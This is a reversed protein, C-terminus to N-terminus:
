DDCQYISGVIADIYEDLISFTLFIRSFIVMGLAQGRPM